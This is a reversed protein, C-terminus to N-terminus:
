LIPKKRKFEIIVLKSPKGDSGRTFFLAIDSCRSGSTIDGSNERSVSDIIASLRVDSYCNCYSLFKDDLLWVNNILCDNYEKEDDCKLLIANHFAEERANDPVGSISDILLARHVIYKALEDKSIRSISEYNLVGEEADIIVKDEIKAQETRYRKVVDEVSALAENKEIRDIPIYPYRRQLIKINEARYEALADKITPL